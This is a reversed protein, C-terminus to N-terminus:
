SAPASQRPTCRYRITPGTTSASRSRPTPATFRPRAPPAPEGPDLQYPGLHFALFGASGTVLVVVKGDSAAGGKTALRAPRRSWCLPGCGARAFAPHHPVADQDDDIRRGPPRSRRLAT